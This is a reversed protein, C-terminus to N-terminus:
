CQNFEEDKNEQNTIYLTEASYAEAQLNILKPSEKVYADIDKFTIETSGYAEQVEVETPFESNIDIYIAVGNSREGHGIVYALEKSGTSTKIFQAPIFDSSRHVKGLGQSKDLALLISGDIKSLGGTAKSYKFFQNDVDNQMAFEIFDEDIPIEKNSEEALKNELFWEYPIAQHFQKPGPLFASQAFAERVLFNGVDPHEALLLRWSDTVKNMMVPDTKAMRDIMYPEGEKGSFPKYEKGIDIQLKNLVLYRGSNKLRTIEAKLLEDSRGSDNTTLPAFHTMRYADYSTTIYRTAGKSTLRGDNRSATAIEQFAEINNLSMDGFVNPNNEMLGLTFDVSNVYQTYVLTGSGDQNIFKESVNEIGVKEKKYYAKGEENTHKTIIEDTLFGDALRNMKIILDTYSTGAGKADSKASLVFNSYKKIAPKTSIYHGLISLQVTPDVEELSLKTNGLLDEFSYNEGLKINVQKAVGGQALLEQKLDKVIEDSNTNDIVGERLSIRKMLEVMVPQLLLASVKHPHVGARILGMGYDNLLSGWNARAVFAQENAIDVFANILESLSGSIKISRLEKELSALTRDEKKSKYYDQMFQALNTLETESLVESYQADMKPNGWAGQNFHAILGKNQTLVHDSHSNAAMGVGEGGLKYAFVLRMSEIPDYVQYATQTAEPLLALSGEKFTPNDISTMMENYFAESKVSGLLLNFVKNKLGLTGNDESVKQILNDRYELEPAIFFMKDIDFDSGTQATIEGYTIITDHMEAPLIGVIRLPSVSAKAQTPIRYGILELAEPTILERLKQPTMNVYNPVLKAVVKHPIFVDGPHLVKRGNITEVRPPRLDDFSDVLMKVGNSQLETKGMLQDSMQIFAGGSMMADMGSKKITSMIGSIMKDKLHPMASIPVQEKLARVLNDEVVDKAMLDDLLSNYFSETNKIVGSNADIGWKASLDAIGANSLESLADQIESLRTLAEPDESFALASMIVKQVQIGIKTDKMGKAPLDQQLRWNSNDLTTTVPNTPAVFKGESDFLVQPKKSGVKVGTDAVM